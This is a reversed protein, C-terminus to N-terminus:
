SRGLPTRMVSYACIWADEANEPVIRALLTTVFTVAYRM